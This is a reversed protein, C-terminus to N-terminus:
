AKEKSLNTLKSIYVIIKSIAKDGATLDELLRKLWVHQKIEKEHFLRQRDFYSLNGDKIIPALILMVDSVIKEEIKEREEERGVQKAVNVLSEIARDSCNDKLKNIIKKLLKDLTM